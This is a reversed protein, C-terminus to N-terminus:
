FNINLGMDFIKQPPYGLGASGMEPDWLKFKSFILLNTGSAYIRLKNINIKKLIKTPISYGFEVSKLRLFSGDRLWWTSTKENNEITTTAMRPWFANPDPNNESWHNDAIVKLANRENIFPSIVTPDILFSSRGSGQFFFSFDFAKYGISSGFGYILEPITPYGIPVKDSNDIKGDKNVDVYKIDGALYDSKNYQIPANLVDAEDVFLREAVLGWQQNIPHGIHSMYDYKYEPEGNETVKNTSYTYNIRSTIWLNKNISAKYDLSCDIGHAEAKGINSSIDASLGMTTPIYGRTMYINSRKETFYDVQVNVKDFLSFEVGYNAKKSIEWTIGTNSYRNISYGNYSNQYSEGFTYGRSGNDLNVDSLYFFRDSASSIADNGVLGYTAKLKFMTVADKYNAFFPENSINWGLGASPFFGWRHQASFKESGNYGFNLEMYYRSDYGYTARGSVGLNRSPLTALGIGSITNLSEKATLVLLGGVDHKEKFTRNYQSLVEFYFSSSSLPEPSSSSLYETGEAVPNLKYSVGEESDLEQMEYYFPKYSHNTAKSTYSSLSAMGRLKLGETVMKLDQEFQVQAMTTSTFQDKYGDVMEAYPNPYGGKGKNGFLTHNLFKTSEDKEYYKPFNVPNANMVSAFISSANNLPGNYRDILNYFKIAAKTTKTLNFDVNARMNYRKIDINNNFNNLKNVKLLGKEDNYSLSFYYQAIDGGGSISMNVKQNQVNDRFLESYWDVNPYLQSNLNNRTGEIKSKSYYLLANPNRTRLADNYLEMYDVGDLFQNVQTPASICNDIRASITAKGKKGIKTTVLIVGNAGRAGYLATATADKMISFSAINDPEVRALDDSSVELGDILILPSNKYGFSTVGRIFFESNDSGPEGSRQYSIIGAMKGALANTLNTPAIKLETPDLTSISGIVSEKKQRQFAVVQFEALESSAEKMIVNITTTNGVLRIEKNFGIYSFLISDKASLNSLAYKGDVSTITANTSSLNKVSVGPLPNGESDVVLGKVLITQSYALQSILMFFVLLVYDVLHKRM